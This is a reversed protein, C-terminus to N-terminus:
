PPPGRRYEFAPCHLRTGIHRRLARGMGLFGNAPRTSQDAVALTRCFLVSSWHRAARRPRHSGLRALPTLWEDWLWFLNGRCGIDRRRGIGRFLQMLGLAMRDSNNILDVLASHRRRADEVAFKLTEIDGAM